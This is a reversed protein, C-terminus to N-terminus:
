FNLTLGLGNSTLGFKLDFQHSYYDPGFHEAAFNNKISKKRVGAAISIPIGATILCDGAIAFVLGTTYMADNKDWLILIFGVAAVAVGSGLLTSGTKKMRCASGFSEYYKTFNNKRFFALMKADDVGIVIFENKLNTPASNDSAEVISQKAPLANFIEEAGNEFTITMVDRVNIIRTPGDQFDFSKYKIQQDNIELVKAKIESGDRKLIVDQAFMNASCFIAIIATFVLTKKM